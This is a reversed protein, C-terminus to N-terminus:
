VIAALLGFPQPSTITVEVITGVILSFFSAVTRFEIGTWRQFVTSSTATPPPAAYMSVTAVATREPGRGLRVVPQVASRSSASKVHYIARAIATFRVTRGGV